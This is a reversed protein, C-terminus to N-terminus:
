PSAIGLEPNTPKKLYLYNRGGRREYIISPILNRVLHIGLGGLPREQISQNVDPAPVELPNFSVGSDSLTIHIDAGTKRIALGIADKPRECGGYKIINLVLEELVVQLQYCTEVPVSQAECFSDVFIRLRELEKVDSDLTLVSDGPTNGNEPM